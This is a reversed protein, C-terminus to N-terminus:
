PLDVKMRYFRRGEAPASGDPLSDAGGAGVHGGSGPVDHWVGSGLDDTYQLTYSRRASAPEFRIVPPTGPEVSTVRFVSDPDEPDTDAVYEQWLSTGKGPVAKGDLDEWTEGPGCAIGREAYWGDIPRPPLAAYYYGYLEFEALEWYDARYGGTLVLRARKAVQGGLEFPQPTGNNALEGEAVKTWASGDASVWLQFGKANYARTANVLKLQTVKASQGGSFSYEFTQAGPTAASIWNYAFSGVAGDTLNLAKWGSADYQSTFSQLVGGNSQLVLNLTAPTAATYATAASGDGSAAASSNGASDEAVLAFAYTGSSRPAFALSGAGANTSMGSDQWFAGNRKYWLEVRKLGSGSDSAGAYTV